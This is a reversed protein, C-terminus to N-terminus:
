VTGFPENEPWDVEMQQGGRKPTKLTRARWPCFKREAGRDTRTPLVVGTRLWAGISSTHQALLKYASFGHCLAPHFAGGVVQVDVLCVALAPDNDNAERASRSILCPM